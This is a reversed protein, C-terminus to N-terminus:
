LDFNGLREPQYIVELVKLKKIGAPVKWIIADGVRCGLLAAGTPALISVAYERTKAKEPFVLAYAREEGSEVDKLLAISNMTIVDEPIDKPDVIAARDLEKKLQRIHIADEDQQEGEILGRLREKDHKTIYIGRHNM